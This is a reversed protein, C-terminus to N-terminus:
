ERRLCLYVAGRVDLYIADPTHAVRLVVNKCVPCRLVIGPGQMFALLTGVEGM